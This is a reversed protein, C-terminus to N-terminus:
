KEPSVVKKAGDAKCFTDGFASCPGRVPTDDDRISHHLKACAECQYASKGSSTYFVNPIVLKHVPAIFHYIVPGVVHPRRSEM